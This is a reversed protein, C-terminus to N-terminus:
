RVAPLSVARTDATLPRPQDTAAAPTIVGAAATASSPTAAAASAPMRAPTTSAFVYPKTLDVTGAVVQPEPEKEFTPKSRSKRLPRGAFLPEEHIEGDQFPGTGFLWRDRSHSVVNEVGSQWIPQGTLRDYACLSIKAVARQDSRKAIALEPVATENGKLTISTSPLGFVLENRDTGIAGARAEVIVDADERKESLRCGSALLQHRLASTLYKGDNADDMCTADLFVSQGKLAQMDVRMVAREIASSVLMQETATRKSDSMRTTGCGLAALVVALIPLVVPLLVPQVAQSLSRRFFLPLPATIPPM